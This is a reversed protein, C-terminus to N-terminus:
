TRAIILGGFTALADGIGRGFLLDRGNTRYEVMM